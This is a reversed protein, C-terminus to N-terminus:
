IKLLKACWHSCLIILLAAALLILLILSVTLDKPLKRSRSQPTTSTSPSVSVTAQSQEKQMQAQRAQLISIQQQLGRLITLVEENSNTGEPQNPTEEPHSPSPRVTRRADRSAASPPTALM